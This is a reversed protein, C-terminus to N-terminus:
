LLTIWALKSHTILQLLAQATRCCHGLYKLGIERLPKKGDHSPGGGLLSSALVNTRSIHNEGEQNILKLGELQALRPSPSNLDEPGDM